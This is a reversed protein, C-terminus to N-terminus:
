PLTLIASGVVNVEPPQVTFSFTSGPFVTAPSPTTCLALVPANSAPYLFPDSVTPGFDLDSVTFSLPGPGGNYGLPLYALLTAQSVASVGPISFGNVQVISDPEFNQGNITVQSQSCSQGAFTAARAIVVNQIAPVPLATVILQAASSV